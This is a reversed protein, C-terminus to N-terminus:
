GQAQGRLSQRHAEDGAGDRVQRVGGLYGHSAATEEKEEEQECETQRPDRFGRPAEEQHEEGLLAPYSGQAETRGGRGM